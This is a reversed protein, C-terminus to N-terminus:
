PCHPVYEGKCIWNGNSDYGQNNCYHGCYTGGGCSCDDCCNGSSCANTNCSQTTNTAVGNSTGCSYSSNFNSYYARNEYYTQTGGGCDASCSGWYGGTVTYSISSCMTVVNYTYQIWNDSAWNNANDLAKVYVDWTGIKNLDVTFSSSKLYYTSSQITGNFYIEYQMAQVGSISDSASITATKQYTTSYGYGYTGSPLNNSITPGSKDLKIEYSAVSSCLGAGSCVRAYYIYSSTENSVSINTGITSINNSNTGFYYTNGSVNNNDSSLTLNFNSTHWSGSGINDSSAFIPATPTKTDLKIVQFSSWTSRNGNNSVTRYWVYTTGEDSVTLNGSTTGTAAVEDTPATSSTSKYYEYEKVGSLATGASSVKITPATAVWSNSGGTLTPATPRVNNLTIKYTRVSGSQSTVYVILDNNGWSLTKSGTGSVTSLVSM